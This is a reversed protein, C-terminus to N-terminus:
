PRQYRDILNDVRHTLGQFAKEQDRLAASLDKLAAISQQQVNHCTAIRQTSLQDLREERHELYSTFEAAMRQNYYLFFGVIVAIVFLAPQTKSINDISKEILPPM